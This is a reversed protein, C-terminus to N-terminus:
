VVMFQSLKVLAQLFIEFTMNAKNKNVQCFILDIRKKNMGQGDDFTSTNFESTNTMM